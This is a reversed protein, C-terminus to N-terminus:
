TKVSFEENEFGAIGGLRSATQKGAETKRYNEYKEWRRPEQPCEYIL